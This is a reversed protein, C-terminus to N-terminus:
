KGDSQEKLEEDSPEALFAWDLSSISGNVISKESKALKDKTILGSELIKQYINALLIEDPSKNM